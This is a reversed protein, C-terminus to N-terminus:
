SRQQRHLAFQLRPITKLHAVINLGRRHRHHAHLPIRHHQVPIMRQRPYVQRKLHLHHGHRRPALRPPPPDASPNPTSPTFNTDLCGIRAPPANAPPPARDPRITAVPAKFTVLGPRQFAPCYDPHLTTIEHKLRAEAGVQCLAFAFQSSLSHMKSRHTTGPKGTPRRPTWGDKAASSLGALFGDAGITTGNM